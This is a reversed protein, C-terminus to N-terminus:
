ACNGQNSAHEIAALQVSVFLAVEFSEAGAKLRRRDNSKDVVREALVPLKPL